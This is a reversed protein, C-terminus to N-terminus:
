PECHYGYRMRRRASRGALRINTILLAKRQVVREPLPQDSEATVEQFLLEAYPPVIGIKGKLPLHGVIASSTNIAGFAITMPSTVMWSPTLMQYLATMRPSVPGMTMPRRVLM